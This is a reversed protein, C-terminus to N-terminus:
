RSPYDKFSFVGGDSRVTAMRLVGDTRALVGVSPLCLAAADCVKRGFLTMAGSAGLFFFTSHVDPVVLPSEGYLLRWLWALWALKSAQVM